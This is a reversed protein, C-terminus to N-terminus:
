RVAAAVGGLPPINAGAGIAAAAACRLSGACGCVRVCACVRVRVCACVLVLGGGGGGDRAPRVNLTGDATLQVGGQAAAGGGGDDGGGGGAATVHEAFVGADIYTRTTGEGGRAGPAVEARRAVALATSLAADDGLTVHRTAFSVEQGVAGAAAVLAARV